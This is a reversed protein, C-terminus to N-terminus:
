RTSTSSARSCSLSGKATRFHRRIGSSRSWCIQCFRAQWGRRVERRPRHQPLPAGEAPEPPERIAPIVAPLAKAHLIELNERESTSIRSTSSEFSEISFGVGFIDVVHRLFETLYPCFREVSDFRESIWFISVIEPIEAVTEARRLFFIGSLGIRCIEVDFSWRKSVRFPRVAM